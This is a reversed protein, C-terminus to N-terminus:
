GAPMVHIHGPDILLVVSSGARLGLDDARRRTVLAELLLPSADGPSAASPLSEPVAAAVEAGILVHGGQLVLRTVSAPVANVPAEALGPPLVEVDEPRVALDFAGGPLPAAVALRLGASTVAASPDGPDRAARLVNRAGLLRAVTEDAPEQLVDRPRGAQRLRGGVLVACLDALAFAEARDHTVHLVSLGREHALARLLDQLGERSEVDVASLPEDLLLARPRAALARALAVRQREGGSLTAPRRELLHAAGVSAALEAVAATRGSGRSGGPGRRLGYAINGAVSLHPFLLGDQFVLGARRVEPPRATVDEGDVEVVGGRLPRVGAAAELVLSKGAGSPGLLVGYVGDGVELDLPGARFDGAVVELQRLGIM